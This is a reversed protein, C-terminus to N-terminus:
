RMVQLCLLLIKFNQFSCFILDLSYNRGTSCLMLSSMMQTYTIFKSNTIGLTRVDHKYIQCKTAPPTLSAGDEFGGSVKTRISAHVSTRPNGEEDGECGGGGESGFM